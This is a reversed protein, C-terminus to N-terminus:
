SDDESDPIINHLIDQNGALHQLLNRIAEEEQGGSRTKGRGLKRFFELAKPQWKGLTTFLGQIKEAISVDKNDPHNNKRKDVSLRRYFKDLVPLYLPTKKITVRTPVVRHYPTTTYHLPAHYPPPTNSSGRRDILDQSNDPWRVSASPPVIEYHQQQTLHPQGNGYYHQTIHYQQIDPHQQNLHHQKTDYQRQTDHYQHTDDHQQTNHQQPADPHQQNLHPQKTDYQHKTDHHQLTDNQQQTDHHHQTIHQQQADPHQQNLHHQKTDYQRQTDHYQQTNHHQQTDHHHQTDHQQQADDYSSFNTRYHMIMHPPIAVDEPKERPPVSREDHLSKINDSVQLM